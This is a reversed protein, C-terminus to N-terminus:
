TKTKGNLHDLIMEQSEIVRGDALVCNNHIKFFQQPFYINLTQFDNTIFM